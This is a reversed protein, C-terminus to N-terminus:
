EVVITMKMGGHGAGCFHDCIARFRGTERPTVTLEKVQGPVIDTDIGLPRVFLGHTTDESTLQLRVTEGRKLTIESPTFEFRRATIAIVRPDEARARGGAVAVLAGLAAVGVLGARVIGDRTVGMRRM